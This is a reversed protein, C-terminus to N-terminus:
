SRKVRRGDQGRGEKYWSWLGVAWIFMLMQRVEEDAFTAELMSTVFFAVSGLMAALLCRQSALPKSRRGGLIFGFVTLWLGSFLVFGPLGYTAVMNILDNHAHVHKRYYPIDPRLREAYATEFNGPGVGFIPHERAIALSKKWIFPRSGEYGPDLEREAAHSFRGALGPMALAIVLAAAALLGVTGILYNRGLILGAVLLGLVVALISGRSFSLLTVIMALLAVFLFLGRKTRSLEDGRAMAYGFFFLAATAYYNGFTLRHSFNGRVKYGFGEAATLASEKFWNLGFFHQLLGYVSVMLVGVAFIAILRRRYTENQMLFIGIPIILFLWDEKMIYLSRTVTEGMLACVFMWVIYLAVFIYLRKLSPVFPNYRHVVILVVFTILALGLSTQAVAISFTSGFIFLAFFLFLADTLKSPTLNNM